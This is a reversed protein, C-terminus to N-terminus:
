FPYSLSSSSPFPPSFSVAPIIVFSSLASLSPTLSLSSHSHYMCGISERYIYLLSLLISSSFINCVSTMVGGIFYSRPPLTPAFPNTNNSTNIITNGERKIYDTRPFVVSTGDLSTIVSSESQTTSPTDTTTSPPPTYIIGERKMGEM